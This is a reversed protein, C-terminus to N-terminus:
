FIGRGKNPNIVIKDQKPNLLAAMYSYVSNLELIMIDCHSMLQLDCHNDALTRNAQCYTVPFPLNTLGYEQAHEKCWDIEDSFVFIHPKKKSHMYKKRTDACVKKLSNRFYEKPTTQGAVAYGGRRIHVSISISNQIMELTECDSPSTLPPLELEKYFMEKHSMFWGGHTFWGFYYANGQSKLMDPMYHYYPMRAIKGDFSYLPAEAIMFFDLGSDKLIQPLYTGGRLPEKKCAISVIEEWVDKDFYESMLKIKKLNRFKDLQYDHKEISAVSQCQADHPCYFWLDDLYVTEDTDKLEEELCRAFIYQTMQNSLAGDLLVIKM